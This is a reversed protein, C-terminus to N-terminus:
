NREVESLKWKESALIEMLLGLGHSLLKFTKPENSEYGLLFQLLVGFESWTITKTKKSFVSPSLM